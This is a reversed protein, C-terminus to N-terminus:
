MEPPAPDKEAEEGERKQALAMSENEAVREADIQQALADLEDGNAYVLFATDRQTMLGMALEEPIAVKVFPPKTKTKKAIELMDRNVSVLKMQGSAIAKSLIEAFTPM